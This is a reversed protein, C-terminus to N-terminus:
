SFKTTCPSCPAHLAPHNSSNPFISEIASDQSVLLFRHMLHITNVRSALPKKTPKTPQNQTLVAKTILSCHPDIHNSTSIQTYTIQVPSPRPRSPPLHKLDLSLFFATPSPFPLCQPGTPDNSLPKALQLDPMRENMMASKEVETLHKICTLIALCLFHM